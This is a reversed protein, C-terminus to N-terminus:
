PGGLFYVHFGLTTFNSGITGFSTHSDEGPLDSDDSVFAIGNAASISVNDVLFVEAELEGTFALSTPTRTDFTPGAGFGVEQSQYLLGPRLLVHVRDWSHIVFPVGVEFAFGTVSENPDSGAPTSSYGLGLDVAVKQSKMWWRIGLPAEVNHFGVGINKHTPSGAMDDAMALSTIIGILLVAVAVAVRKMAVRRPDREGAPFPLDFM